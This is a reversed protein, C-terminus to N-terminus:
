SERHKKSDRIVLRAIIRSATSLAWWSCAVILITAFIGKATESLHLLLVAFALAVVFALVHVVVVLGCLRISRQAIPSSELICRVEDPSLGRDELEERLYDQIHSQLPM